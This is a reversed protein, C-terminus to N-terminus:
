VFIKEEFLEMFVNSLVPSLPSGMSLGNNQVFFEGNFTFHTCSLCLRILDFFSDLRIPLSFSISVIHERLWPLLTQIPVNTFLSVIDFSMMNRNDLNCGRIKDVFDISNKVHSPFINGVLPSLIKSIWKALKYTICNINSIIPRLPIDPKHIKPLGYFYALRPMYSNFQKLLESNGVLISKLKKNFYSQSNKLPDSTLKKYVLTDNLLDYAKQTYQVKDLIVIQKGKDAKTIVLDKNKRLKFLADLLLKPLTRREGFSTLEGLIFGKVLSAYNIDKM